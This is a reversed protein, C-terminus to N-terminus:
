GCVIDFFIGYIVMLSFYFLIFLTIIHWWSTMSLFTLCTPWGSRIMKILKNLHRLKCAIIMVILSRLSYAVVEIIPQGVTSIKNLSLPSVNRQASNFLCLPIRTITLKRGNVSFVLGVKQFASKFNECLIARETSVTMIIVPNVCVSKWVKAKFDVCYDSFEPFINDSM